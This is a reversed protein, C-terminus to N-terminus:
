SQPILTSRELRGTCGEAWTLTERQAAAPHRCFSLPMCAYLQLPLQSPSHPCPQYALQSCQVQPLSGARSGSALRCALAAPRQRALAPGMSVQRGRQWLRSCHWCHVLDKDEYIEEQMGQDRAEPTSTGGATRCAMCRANTASVGCWFLTFVFVFFHANDRTCLHSLLLAPPMCVIGGLAPLRHAPPSPPHKLPPPVLASIAASPCRAPLCTRAGKGGATPM